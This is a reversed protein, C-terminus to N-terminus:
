RNPREGWLRLWEVHTLRRGNWVFPVAARSVDFRNGAFRNGLAAYTARDFLRRAGRTVVGTVGAHMSVDNHLVFLNRLRYHGFAGAGRADQIAVIGNHNDSLTNDFVEVDRSVGILIGAGTVGDVPAAGAGNRRIVNNRIVAAYSIEHFIGAEANDEVRNGDYLTRVNDIDTWLGPGHNHHVFNRRVVLDRTRAFKTGGAEWYMDYEARANNRAIENGEVLIDDGSGLIGIQGNDNIRSATIRMRNGMRIGGTTNELVDCSDVLWGDAGYAHIAGDQLPPAYRRITLHRLTVNNGSDARFAFATALEGDLIAGPEGVFSMGDRPTISQRRHVGALLIFTTGDLSRRVLAQIDTGPPVRLASDGRMVTIAVRQQQTGSSAVVSTTGPTSARVIGSQSVDAISPYDSAWRVRRGPLANEFTDRAIASFPISDGVSLIMRSALITISTVRTLTDTAPHTGSVMPPAGDSRRDCGVLMLSVAAARATAGASLRM